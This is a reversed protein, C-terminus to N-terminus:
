VIKSSFDPKFIRFFIIHTKQDSCKKFITKFGLGPSQKQKNKRKLLSKVSFNHVEAPNFILNNSYLALKSVMQGGGGHRM